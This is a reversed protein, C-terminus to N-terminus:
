LGWGALAVVAAGAAAALGASVLSRPGLGAAADTDNDADAEEADTAQDDTEAFLFFVPLPHTPPHPRQSLFRALPHNINIEVCMIVYRPCPRRRRRDVVRNTCLLRPSTSAEVPPSLGRRILFPGAAAYYVLAFIRYPRATLECLPHSLQERGSMEVFPFFPLIDRLGCHRPFVLAFFRTGLGQATRESSRVGGTCHRSTPGRFFSDCGQVYSSACKLRLVFTTCKQLPSPCM